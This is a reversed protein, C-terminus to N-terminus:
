SEEQLVFDAVLGHHDSGTRSLREFHIRELAESYLIHDIPIGPVPAWSPFTDALHTRADRLGAQQRLRKMGPDWPVANTDGLFLVAQEKKDQLRHSWYSLHANRDRYRARTVPSRTHTVIVEIEREQHVVKTSLSNVNDRTIERIDCLPTRSYIALGYSTHNSPHAYSYPYEECLQSDLSELWHSSVEQFALLDAGLKCSQEALAAHRDIYANVNFQGIRFHGDQEGGTGPDPLIHPSLYFFLTLFSALGAGLWLRSTRVVAFLAILGCGLMWHFAFSRFLDLYFQPLPLLMITTGLLLLLAFARESLRLIHRLHKM